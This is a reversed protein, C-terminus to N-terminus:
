SLSKHKYSKKQKYNGTSYYRLAHVKGKSQRTYTYKSYTTIIMFNRQSDGSSASMSNIIEKGGSGGHM